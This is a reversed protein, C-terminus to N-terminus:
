CTLVHPTVNFVMIVKHTYLLRTLLFVLQAWTLKFTSCFFFVDMVNLAKGSSNVCHQILRPTVVLYIVIKSYVATKLNTTQPSKGAGSTCYRHTECWSAFIIKGSRCSKLLQEQQSDPPAESMMLKDVTNIYNNKSGSPSSLLKM